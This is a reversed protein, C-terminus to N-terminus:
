DQVRCDPVFVDAQRELQVSEDSRIMFCLVIMCFHYSIFLFLGTQLDFTLFGLDNEERSASYDPM